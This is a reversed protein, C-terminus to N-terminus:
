FEGNILALFAVLAGMSCITLGFNAWKQSRGDPSKKIRSLAVLGFILAVLLMLAAIGFSQFVLAVIVAGIGFSASAVASAHIPTDAANPMPAKKKSRYHEGGDSDVVLLVETKLLVFKPYDPQGCPRYKVETPTIDTLEAEIISGDLLMIRDCPSTSDGQAVTKEWVQKGAAKRLRKVAAKLAMKEFFRLAGRQAATHAPAPAANKVGCFDTSLVTRSLPAAALLASGFLLGAATLLHRFRLLHRLTM